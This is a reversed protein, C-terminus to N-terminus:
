LERESKERLRPRVRTAVIDKQPQRLRDFLTAFESKLTSDPQGFASHSFCSWANWPQADRNGDKM